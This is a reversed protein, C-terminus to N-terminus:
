FLVYFCPETDHKRPHCKLAVLRQNAFHSILTNVVAGLKDAWGQASLMFIYGVASM